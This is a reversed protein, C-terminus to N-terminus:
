AAPANAGPSASQRKSEDAEKLRAEFYGREKQVRYLASEASPLGLAAAIESLSLKTSLSLIKRQGPTLLGGHVKLRERLLLKAVVSKPSLKKTSANEDQEGRMAAVLERRAKRLLESVSGVSALELETAVEAITMGQAHLALVKRHPWLLLDGHTKLAETVNTKDLVDFM